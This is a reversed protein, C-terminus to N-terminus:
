SGKRDGSLAAKSIKPNPNCWRLSRFKPYQRWVVSRRLLFGAPRPRRLACADPPAPRPRPAPAPGRRAPTSATPGQPEPHLTLSYVLGPGGTPGPRRAEGGPLRLSPSDFPDSFQPSASPCVLQRGPSLPAGVGRESLQPFSSLQGLSGWALVADAAPLATHGPPPAAPAPGPVRFGTPPRPPGPPRSGQAPLALHATAAAPARLSTSQQPSSSWVRPTLKRHSQPTNLFRHCYFRPSALSPGLACFPFPRENEPDLRHRM